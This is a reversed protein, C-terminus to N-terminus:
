SWGDTNLRSLGEWPSHEARHRRRWAGLSAKTLKNRLFAGEHCSNAGQCHVNQPSLQAGAQRAGSFPDWKRGSSFLLPQAPPTRLSTTSILASSNDAGFWVKDWSHSSWCGCSDAKQYWQSADPNEQGKQIWNSHWTAPCPRSGWCSSVPGSSPVQFNLPAWPPCAGCLLPHIARRGVAPSDKDRENESGGERGGGKRTGTTSLCICSESPQFVKESKIIAGWLDKSQESMHIVILKAVSLPTKGKLLTGTM